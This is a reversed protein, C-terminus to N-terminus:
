AAQRMLALFRDYESSKDLFADAGSVLCQRKYEPFAYNTLVFIQPPPVPARARIKRVVELGSGEKLQIDTVVIDPLLEAVGAVAESESEAVGVVDFRMLFLLDDVIRKRILASDEVVFVRVRAADTNM